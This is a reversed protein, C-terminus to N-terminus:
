SPVHLVLAPTNQFAPIPIATHLMTLVGDMSLAKSCDALRFLAMIFIVYLLNWCCLNSQRLQSWLKSCLRNLGNRSGSPNVQVANQIGTYSPDLLCHCNANLVNGKTNTLLITFSRNSNLTYQSLNSSLNPLHRLLQLISSVLYLQVGSLSLRSPQISSFLTSSLIVIAGGM